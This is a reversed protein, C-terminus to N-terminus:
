KKTFVMRRSLTKKVSSDLLAKDFTTRLSEYNKDAIIKYSYEFNAEEPNERNLVVETEFKIDMLELKEAEKQLMINMCSALAAELIDHPRPYKGTGGKEETTDICLDLEELQNVYKKDKSISKM